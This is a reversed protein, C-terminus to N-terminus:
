RDLEALDDPVTFATTGLANLRGIRPEIVAWLTPWRDADCKAALAEVDQVIGLLRFGVRHAEALDEGEVPRPLRDLVHGHERERQQQQRERARDVAALAAPDNVIAEAATLPDDRFVRRVDTVARGATRREPDRAGRDLRLWDRFTGEPIGMHRAFATATVKVVRGRADKEDTPQGEYKRFTAVFGARYDGCEAEIVSWDIANM